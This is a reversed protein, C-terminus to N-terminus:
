SGFDCASHEVAERAKLADPQRYSGRVCTGKTRNHETYMEAIPMRNLPASDHQSWKASSVCSKRVIISRSRPSFPRGSEQPIAELLRTLTWSDSTAEESKPPQVFQKTPQGRKLAKVISIASLELIRQRPLVNDRMSMGGPLWSGTDLRSKLTSEVVRFLDEKDQSSDERQVSTYAV